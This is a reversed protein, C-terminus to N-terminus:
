MEKTDKTGEHHIGRERKWWSCDCGNDSGDAAAGLVEGVRALLAERAAVVEVPCPLSRQFSAAYRRTVVRPDAVIVIGRDERHRILRGFGQRFRIVANPLSFAMFGSRGEAEVQERRAEQVPEGVAAFPLRAVVVCSLADGVVDVGEWFSHTGLLVCSQGARFIRTIQDRSGSEGQVLLRIGEAALPERLLKACRQMMEYSTFLGLARGRTLVFVDLMLASLQEAYARGDVGPEPLFVPALVACQRRYDFPSAAVCAALRGPTARDLGLRGALFDFTGGVRLTASCFVISSRREYLEAALRPGIRLPAAWAEGQGRERTRSRQVWFVHEADAASLVFDADLAFTRLLMGCAELDLAEEEHLALEGERALRVDQALARLAEDARAAAAQLGTVAEAAGAWDATALSAGGSEPVPRERGSTDPVPPPGAAGDGEDPRVFAPPGEPSQRRFRRPERENPALRGLARFLGQGAGHVSEVEVGALRLQKRLAKRAKPDAGLDGKEVQRRLVELVGGAHRGGGRSLRRLLAGLRFPTVEVSFHRTAAEEINHAEDFVIQAAVPLAVGPTGMEAFVLAHNAIVVHAHLARDRAKQLFCRRCYRCGRGACEEGLSALQAAFSPEMGGGGALEDLDGDATQAAWAVVRALTRLEPRELEYTGFELLAGLRRLCLYNTRGKLLAVRLASHPPGFASHPIRLASHPPGFASHPIRLASHPAPSAGVSGAANGEEVRTGHDADEMGCEASRVGCETSQAVIDQVLPLDKDLLQQQLNRTNTSVIVPVDNLRAWLAAPLLYAVSKGVGTGAEVLLHTAGNFARVVARLMQVQGPRPEYGPMRRSMPGGPQLLAAVAEEDLPSCDAHVPMARKAPRLAVAAFSEHWPGVKRGARRVEAAHRGAYRALAAEGVERLLLEVTELAWLPRENLRDAAAECVQWLAAASPASPTVAAVIQEATEAPSSPFALRFLGAADLVQGAFPATGEALLARLAEPDNTVLFADDDPTPAAGAPPHTEFRPAGDPARSVWVARVAPSM